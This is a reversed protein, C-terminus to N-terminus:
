PGLASFISIDFASFIVTSPVARGTAPYYVLEGDSHLTVSKTAKPYRVQVSGSYVAVHFVHDSSCTATWRTNIMTLNVPGMGCILAQEPRSTLDRCWVQGATLSFLSGAPERSLLTGVPAGGLRMLQCIAETGFTAVPAGNRTVNLTTGCTLRARVTITSPTPAGSPLVQTLPSRGPTVSDAHCPSTSPSRTPTPTPTPTPSPASSCGCLVALVGLGALVRSISV